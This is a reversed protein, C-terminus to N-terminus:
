YPKVGAKMLKDVVFRGIQRGQVQGQEIGDRYHIGGYLRSISAENAAKRFSEFHRPKLDFLVETDDTFAVHDGLLYSLLEASASSIVSHGSTYEPFPPTQLLPQWNVDIYKNIVTEPRVREYTYKAQWCSIFADYLTVAELSLLQISRHFGLKNQAAAICAINMWHGGPSIKKFGLSMHGATAVVFPNCDWFGAIEKQEETLGVGVNRVEEMLLYFPTGKATDFPVPAKLPFQGASDIILTKMTSWHPDVADMYAPPTPFWFGEKRRPRYRQLASLKRYGDNAAFAVVSRATERALRQAAAIQMEDYGHEQCEKRLAEYAEGLTMGSPLLLQGSEYICFLASLSPEAPIGLSTGLGQPFGHVFASPHIFSPDHAAIIAYAGLTAYLYYRSAITPSVVDHMMVRSLGFIAPQIKQELFQERQQAVSSLGALVILASWLILKKINM